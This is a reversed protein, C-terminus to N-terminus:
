HKDACKKLLRDFARKVTIASLSSKVAVNRRDEPSLSGAQLHDSLLEEWVDDPLTLPRGRKLPSPDIKKRHRWRTVRHLPRDTLESTSNERNSM